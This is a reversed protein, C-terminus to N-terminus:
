DEQEKNPLCLFQIGSPQEFITRNHTLVRTFCRLLKVPLNIIEILWINNLHDM